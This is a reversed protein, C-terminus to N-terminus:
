IAIGDSFKRLSVTFEQKRPLGLAAFVGQGEDVTTIVWLGFVNGMGSILLQPQRTAAIARLADVQAFGGRYVPLIVGNLTITDEGPGTYQLADLQGFREQAAWKYETRRKLEQYAATNVSFTFSGLRLM